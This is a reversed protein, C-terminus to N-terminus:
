EQVKPMIGLARGVDRASKGLAHGTKVASTKVASGTADGAQTLGEATSDSTANLALSVAGSTNHGSEAIASEVGVGNAIVRQAPHRGPNAWAVDSAALGDVRLLSESPFNSTMMKDLLPWEASIVFVSGNMPYGPEGLNILNKTALATMADCRDAGCGGRCIKDSLFSAHKGPSIWIKAGGDEADLTAARAIQSVDCVTDEHAAAYWYAAKWQATELDDGSAQVLVAVHETDLHHGHAGCDKSWLHYYHIEVLPSVGLKAKADAKALTVQGYITGNEREVTPLLLGSKFEAPIGACDAKGILFSPSFQMLLRQELGDSLGDHDSDVQVSPESAEASLAGNLAVM